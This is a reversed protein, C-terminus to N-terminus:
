VSMSMYFVEVFILNFPVSLLAVRVTRGTPSAKRWSRAVYIVAGLLGFACALFLMAEPSPPWMTGQEYTEVVVALLVPGMAALLWPFMSAGALWAFPVYPILAVIGRWGAAFEDELYQYCIPDYRMFALAIAVNVLALMSMALKRELVFRGADALYGLLGDDLEDDDRDVFPEILAILVSWGVVAMGILASGGLLVLLLTILHENM